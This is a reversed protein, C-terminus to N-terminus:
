PIDEVVGLARDLPADNGQEKRHESVAVERDVVMDLEPQRVLRVM